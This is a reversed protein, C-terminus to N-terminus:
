PVSTNLFESSPCPPALVPVGSFYGQGRGDPSKFILPSQPMHESKSFSLSRLAPGKARLWALLCVLVKGSPLLSQLGKMAPDWCLHQSRAGRGRDCPPLPSKTDLWAEQHGCGQSCIYVAPVCLM